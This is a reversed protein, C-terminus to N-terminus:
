EDVLTDSSGAELRQFPFSLVSFGVQEWLGQTLAIGPSRPALLAPFHLGMQAAAEGRCGVSGWGWRADRHGTCLPEQHRPRRKQRSGRSARNLEKNWFSRGIKGSSCHQGPSLSECRPEQGRGRSHSHTWNQPVHSVLMEHNQFVGSAEQPSLGGPGSPAPRAAAGATDPGSAKTVGGRTLPQTQRQPCLHQQGRQPLGKVGM